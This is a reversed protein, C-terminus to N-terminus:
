PNKVVYNCSATSGCDACNTLDSPKATPNPTQELATCLYYKFTTPRTYAYNRVPDIPDKPILSIYENTVACSAPTGSGVLSGGWSLPSSPYVDCDSKYIELGSKILELDAKRKADRSVTRAGQLGFISLGILIGIISIVVLLEILTFGSDPIKFRSNQTKTEM